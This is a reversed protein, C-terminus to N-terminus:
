LDPMIAFSGTARAADFGYQPRSYLIDGQQMQCASAGYPKIYTRCSPSCYAHMRLAQEDKKREKGQSPPARSATM